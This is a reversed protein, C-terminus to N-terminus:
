FSRDVIAQALRRIHAQAPGGGGTAALHGLAQQRHAQALARTRAGAGARELLALVEPIRAETLVPEAYLDALDDYGHQREWALAYLVPLTKKRELIDSAASKGTIRPDGWIGLGDDTVQFCLGLALGFRRWHALAAETAGGLLAGVAVSASLLAATKGAIMREYDALSVESTEEFRLDLYQGTCLELCAEELLRAVQLVIHAPHDLDSLRHVAQRALVWMADGTNIGQAIGWLHWVTARHRRTNSRDEIDDHVLSFNHILELSAAAPVARRWAGGAAECALLCLLPRLRKGRDGEAPRFAADLWGMHYQMMQYLPASVAEPAVLLERLAEEIALLYPALPDDM